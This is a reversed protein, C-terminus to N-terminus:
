LFSQELTTVYYIPNDCPHAATMAVIAEALKEPLCFVEVKVEDQCCLDDDLCQYQGRGSAEFSCQTFNAYAGGGAAFIAAKVAALSGPSVYFSLLKLTM